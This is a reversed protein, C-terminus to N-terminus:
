LNNKELNSQVVLRWIIMLEVISVRRKGTQVRKHVSGDLLGNKELVKVNLLQKEEFKIKKILDNLDANRVLRKLFEYKSSVPLANRIFTFMVIHSLCGRDITNKSSM